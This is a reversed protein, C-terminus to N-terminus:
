AQGSPPEQVPPRDRSLGHSTKEWHHPCAILMYVARWAAPTMMLWYLPMALVVDRWGLGFRMKGTKHGLLMASGYGIVLNVSNCIMLVWFQMHNAGLGSAIAAFSAAFTILFLPHILASIIMGGTLIQFTLFGSRGMDRWLKAPQRMHVIWTQMWGKFWRTRQKLWAGYTEPAEEWTDSLLTEVQYGLRMLRLGLDADETVNYPDWGGVKKLIETNFHNSTGGLPVPLGESSLFPLLADFLSAYELAFQRALFSAKGNDIALRGQLCALKNGGAMMRLAAEKLQSPHPRDEADFIVVLDSSVFSLAYNLAKPKTRPGFAPVSVISFPPGTAFARVARQTDPDDEEVLLQIELRHAPYDIRSLAIILDGVIEAEHYLPVLITYSPWDKVQRCISSLRVLKQMDHTRTARLRWFAMLRLSAIAIFFAIAIMNLGVALLPWVLLSGLMGLIGALIAVVHLAKFPRHASFRPRTDRLRFVHEEFARASALEKQIARLRSPTTLCVLPRLAPNERLRDALRDLAAGHPACIMRRAPLATGNLNCFPRALVLNVEPLAEVPWVQKPGYLDSSSITEVFPVGLRKAAMMFYLREKLKGSGIWQEALSQGSTAEKDHLALLRDPSLHPSQLLTLHFPLSRDGAEAEPKAEFRGNNFGANAGRGLPVKRRVAFNAVSPPPDTGQLKYAFAPASPGDPLSTM